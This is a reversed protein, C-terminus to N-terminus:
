LCLHAKSQHLILPHLDIMQLNEFRNPDSANEAIEDVLDTAEVSLPSEWFDEIHDVSWKWLSAYTPFSLGNTENLWEQYSTLNSQQEFEPTPKWLLKPYTM